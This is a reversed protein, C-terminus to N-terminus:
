DFLKVLKYNEINVLTCLLGRGILVEEALDRTVLGWFHAFEREIFVFSLSIQAVSRDNDDHFM